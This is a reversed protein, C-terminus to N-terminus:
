RMTVDVGENSKLGTLPMDMCRFSSPIIPWNDFDIEDPEGWDIAEGACRDDLGNHPKGNLIWLPKDYDGIM